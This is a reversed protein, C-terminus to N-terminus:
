PVMIRSDFDARTSPFDALDGTSLPLLAADPAAPSFATVPLKKM